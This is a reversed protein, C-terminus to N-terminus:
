VGNAYSSLLWATRGGFVRPIETSPRRALSGLPKGKWPFGPNEMSLFVFGVAASLLEANPTGAEAPLDMSSTEAGM